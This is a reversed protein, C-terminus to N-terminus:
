AAQAGPSRRNSLDTPETQRCFCVCLSRGTDIPGAAYLSYKVSHKTIWTDGKGFFWTEGDLHVTQEQTSVLAM